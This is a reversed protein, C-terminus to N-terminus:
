SCLTNGHHLAGWQVPLVPEEPTPTLLQKAGKRANGFLGGFFQGFGGPLMKGRFVGSRRRRRSDATPRAPEPAPRETPQTEPSSSEEAVTEPVNGTDEPAPLDDKAGPDPTTLDSSCM